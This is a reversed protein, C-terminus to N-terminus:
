LLEDRCFTTKPWHLNPASDNTRMKYSMLGWFVKWIQWSSVPCAASGREFSSDGHVWQAWQVDRKHTGLESGIGRQSLMCIVPWLTPKVTNFQYNQVMQKWNDPARHIIHMLIMENKKWGYIQLCKEKKKKLGQSKEEM